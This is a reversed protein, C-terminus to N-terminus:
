FLLIKRMSFNWLFVLFTSILKSAILSINREIAIFKTFFIEAFFWLFLLNLLLGILGIISFLFFENFRSKLKRKTFVWKISLLYNTAVGCIFAIAGAIIYYNKFFAIKILFYFISFDVLFALGGVFGYRIFQILTEDTKGSLFLLFSNKM